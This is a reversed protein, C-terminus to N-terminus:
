TRWEGLRLPWRTPNAEEYRNLAADPTCLGGPLFSAQRVHVLSDHYELGKRSWRKLPERINLAVSRPEVRDYCTIDDVHDHDSVNRFVRSLWSYGAANGAIVLEMEFSGGCLVAREVIKVRPKRLRRQAPTIVVRMSNPPKRSCDVHINTTLTKARGLQEIFNAYGAVDGFVWVDTRREYYDPTDWCMKLRIFYLRM